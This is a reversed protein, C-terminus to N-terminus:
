IFKNLIEKAADDIYDEPFFCYKIDNCTRCAEYVNRNNLLQQKQFTKLIASNWVDVISDKNINGLVIPKYHNCCPSVDGDPNILFMYFPWPCVKLEARKDGRVSDNFEKKSSFMDEYKLDSVLPSLHEVAIYDCMPSFTEYFERETYDGLAADLIKIYIETKYNYRDRMEKFDKINQKFKSFDIEVDSVEKYAKSDLGQLSIRLKGLGAELLKRSLTKNLLSANTIIDVVEAVDSDVLIKIMKDIDPHLLPEGYGAFHIAKIKDGFKKADEVFKKFTELSMTTNNCVEGRNDYPIAQFCYKCKFNCAYIPFLQVSLPTSLPIMEALSHRKGSVPLSNLIKAISM